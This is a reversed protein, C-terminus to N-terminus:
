KNTPWALILKRGEFRTPREANVPAVKAQPVESILPIAKAPPVLTILKACLEDVEALDAELGPSRLLALDDHAVKRADDSATRAESKSALLFLQSVGNHLEGIDAQIASLREDIVRYAKWILAMLVLFAGAGLVALDITM